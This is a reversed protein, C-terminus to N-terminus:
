KIFGVSLGRGDYIWLWLRSATTLFWCSLLSSLELRTHFCHHQFQISNVLAIIWLLFRWVVLSRLKEIM